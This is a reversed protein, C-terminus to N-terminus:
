RILPVKEERKPKDFLVERGVHRGYAYPGKQEIKRGSSSRKAKAGNWQLLHVIKQFLKTM